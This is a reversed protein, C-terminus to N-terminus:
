KFESILEDQQAKSLRPGFSAVCQSATKNALEGAYEVSHGNTIAYLYAGAFTDGAGTTDVAKVSFPDIHVSPKDKQYITAGKPGETVVIHPCKEAFSAIGAQLDGNGYDTAEECNCFLLDVGDDGIVSELHPRVYKIVAPDSVTLAVKVGNERAIKKAHLIGEVAKEQYVLHGEIYLYESNKISTECVEEKSFQATIGLYTNMTRDADDTVMVICKGTEGQDDQEALKHSVNSASLDKQYFMGFDDNGVKCCYFTNAGYQAATVVTNAASGGCAKKQIPFDPELANLLSSHQDKEILTMVGKEIQNKQFFSSDTAYELDVLANGLATFDYKM